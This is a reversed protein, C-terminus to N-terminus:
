SGAQTNFPTKVRTTYFHGKFDINLNRVTIGFLDHMENEYTFAAWYVGSISQLEPHNLPLSIRLNIFNYDKDFSYSVELYDPKRVCSIQVLRYGEKCFEGTKVVLESVEIQIIKQEEIM